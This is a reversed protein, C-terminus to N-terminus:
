QGTDATVQLNPQVMSPCTILPLSPQVPLPSFVLFQLSPPMGGGRRERIEKEEHDRKGYKASGEVGCGM